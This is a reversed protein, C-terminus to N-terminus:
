TCDEEQGLINGGSLCCGVMERLWCGDCLKDMRKRMLYVGTGLGSHGLRLRPWLMECRVDGRFSM